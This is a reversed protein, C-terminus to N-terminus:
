KGSVRNKRIVELIREEHEDIPLVERASPLSTAEDAPGPTAPRVLSRTPNKRVVELIREEHEDIPLAEHSAVPDPLAQAEETSPLVSELNSLSHLEHTPVSGALSMTPELAQRTWYLLVHYQYQDFIASPPFRQTLEAQFNLDIAISITREILFVAFTDSWQPRWNSPPEPLASPRGKTPSSSVQLLDLADLHLPRGKTPSSSVQLLDLADLHQPQIMGHIQSIPAKDQIEVYKRLCRVVVQKLSCDVSPTALAEILDYDPPLKPRPSDSEDETGNEDEKLVTEGPSISNLINFGANAEMRNFVVVAIDDPDIPAMPFADLSELNYLRRVFDLIMPYDNVIGCDQPDSQVPSAHWQFGLGKSQVFDVIARIGMNALSAESPSTNCTTWSFTVDEAAGPNVLYDNGAAIAVEILAKEELLNLTAALEGRRIVSGTVLSLAVHITSLPVYNVDPFFCFDTDNAIVYAQSVEDSTALTTDRAEAARNASACDRALIYDAEDACTVRQISLILHICHKIEALWLRSKPFFSEGWCACFPPNATSNKKNSGPLPISGTECYQQYYGWETELKDQRSDDTHQKVARRYPGDWYVALHMGAKTLATIYEV